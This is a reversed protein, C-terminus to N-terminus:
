RGIVPEEYHPANMDKILVRPVTPLELMGALWRQVDVPRLLLSEYTVVVFPVKLDWLGGFIRAYAESVQLRAAEPDAAFGRKLQSNVLAFQERVTVVARVEYGALQLREVMQQLKPWGRDRGHPFSRRWVVLEDDDEFDHDDWWQWHGTGGICGAQVMVMTLLRTGSSEPGLVM